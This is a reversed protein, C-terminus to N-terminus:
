FTWSSSPIVWQKQEAELPENLRPKWDSLHNGGPQKPRTTTHDRRDIILSEDNIATIVAISSLCSMLLTCIQPPQCNTTTTRMTTRASNHNSNNDSENESENDNDSDNDGNNSTLTHAQDM